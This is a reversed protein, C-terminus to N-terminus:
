IAELLSEIELREISLKEYEDCLENFLNWFDRDHQRHACHAIEHLMTDMIISEDYFDTESFRLKIHICVKNVNMGMLDRTTYPLESLFNIKFGKRKIIPYVQGYINELMKQSKQPDIQHPYPRFFKTM